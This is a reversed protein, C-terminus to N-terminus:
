ANEGQKEDSKLAIRILRKVETQKAKGDLAQLIDADNKNHLKLGVFTTNEAFWKKKAESEM